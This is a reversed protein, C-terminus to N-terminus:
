IVKRSEARYLITHAALIFASASEAMDICPRIQSLLRSNAQM